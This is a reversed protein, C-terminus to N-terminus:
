PLCTLLSKLKNLVVQQKAVDNSTTKDKADGVSVSIYCGSQDHVHHETPLRETGCWKVDKPSVIGPNIRSLVWRFSGAEPCRDDVDPFNVNLFVDEPLYPAGSAVIVNTLNAALQAYVESVHPVPYTDWRLRGHDAGSFAIAPIKATHAAYSAAGVTGSFPM